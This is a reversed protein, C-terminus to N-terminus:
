RGVKVGVKVWGEKVATAEVSRPGFLKNAHQLTIRAFDSFQANAKLQKDRMADYWIRGAKEWSYGGLDTAIQYFAHNPIGTNIHIGGSDSSTKVYQRMHSPQPDKGMRKDNYATGPKALSSIAKGNVSPAFLGAGHLWDAEGATQKLAYQKVLVAFICAISNFLAGSQEWYTLKTDHQVVGNTFEKAVVDLPKTFREFLDGDGDGIIMHKGNWFANNFKKGFHVTAKLPM